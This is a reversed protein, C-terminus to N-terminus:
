RLRHDKKEIQEIARKVLMKEEGFVLYINKFQGKSLQKKLESESLM